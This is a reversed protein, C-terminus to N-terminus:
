ALNASPGHALLSESTSPSSGSSKHHRRKSEQVDGLIQTEEEATWKKTEKLSTEKAGPDQTNRAPLALTSNTMKGPVEKEVIGKKRGKLADLAIKKAGSKLANRGPWALISCVM